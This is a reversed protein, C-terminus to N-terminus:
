PGNAEINVIRQVEDVLLAVSRSENARLVVLRSPAELAALGILLALDVVPTATGRIASVGRVFPPANPVPHCALPALTDRVYALPFACLWSGARVLLVRTHVPDVNM